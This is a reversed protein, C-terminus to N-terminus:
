IPRKECSELTRPFAYYEPDNNSADGYIRTAEAEAGDLDERVKRYATSRIRRPKEM